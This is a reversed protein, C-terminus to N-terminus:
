SRELDLEATTSLETPGTTVGTQGATLHEGHVNLLAAPLGVRGQVEHMSWDITKLAEAVEPM